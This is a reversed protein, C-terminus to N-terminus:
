PRETSLPRAAVARLRALTADRVEDPGIVVVDPAAAAAQDAIEQVSGYPVAHVVFGEPGPVAVEAGRRRLAPAATGRIALHAVDTVAAPELSAAAAEVVHRDPLEYAGPPELAAVPGAVRSLRFMRPADKDVDRGYVYWVGRRVLVGWAEVTRRQGPARYDFRIRRRAAIAEWVVGVAEDDGGLRPQVFGSSSLEVGAAQLKGLAASAQPGLAAGDFVHAAIGLVVQEAQTFEVPPLEFDGPLIRYGQEDDFYTDNSGTEIPIGLARLDDKDREFMRQFAADSLGQYGEVSDRIKERTLFRRAALLCIVLNLQRETKRPAM